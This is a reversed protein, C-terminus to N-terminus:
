NTPESSGSGKWPLAMRESSNQVESRIALLDVRLKRLGISDARMTPASTGAILLM